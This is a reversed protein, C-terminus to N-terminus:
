YLASQCHSYPGHRSVLAANDRWQLLRQRFDQIKSVIDGQSLDFKRKPDSYRLDNSISEVIQFLKAKEVLIADLPTKAPSTDIREICALLGSSSRLMSPRRLTM